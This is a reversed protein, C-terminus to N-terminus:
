NTKRVYRCAWVVYDWRFTWLSMRLSESKVWWSKKENNNLGRYMKMKKLFFCYGCM